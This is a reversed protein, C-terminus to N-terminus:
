PNTVERYEDVPAVATATETQTLGFIDMKCTVVVQYLGGQAFGSPTVTPLGGPKNLCSISGLTDDDAIAVAQSNAGDVSRQLSGMRAADSAASGLVGKANVLMGLAVMFLLVIVIFPAWLVVEVTSMGTDPDSGRSPPILRMQFV